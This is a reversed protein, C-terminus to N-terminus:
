ANRDVKGNPTLPLAALPIVSPVMPAPLLNTLAARLRRATQPANGAEADAEDHMVAWAVLRVEGAIRRPECIAQAVDPLSCLAAEVEGPEIRWGSLKVQRDRRGDFLLVGDPCCSVRDGTRYMRSGPLGHPSPLFAAATEGPRGLYGRAVGPGEVFLEGEVGDPVPQLAADLVMARTERLPQGIPIAGETDTLGVWHTTAFTTTETPGYGNTLRPAGERRLVARAAGPEVVDGGVLLDDLGGFMTEDRAVCASFLGATLWLTTVRHRGLAAAIMPPDPPLDPPLVVAAGNALAGWIEFTAADFSYPALHLVRKGPGMVAFEPAFAFAALGEQTNGVPKPRGTSGSTAFIVALAGPPPEALPEDPALPHGDIALESLGAPLSATSGDTVALRAGTDEVLLAVRAAPADPEVPVAAGGARAVAVLAVIRQISRRACVVVAVEPGVSERRLAQALAASKEDLEAYSLTEGEAIVAPADRHAAVAHAFLGALTRAPLDQKRPAIRLAADREAATLIPLNALKATPDAAAASAMAEFRKLLREVDAEDFLASAYEASVLLGQDGTVFRLSLDFKSTGTEIPEPVGFALNEQPKQAEHLAILVDFLPQRTPDRRPAVREAIRELPVSQHALAAEVQARVQRLHEAVGAETRASLRLPLTNVYFGVQDALMPHERGAVPMGVVMDEAGSLRAALAAFLAMLTQYPTTECALGLDEIAATAKESIPRKLTRGTMEARGSRPRPSLDLPLPLPSLADRWFRLAERAAESETEAQIAHAIDGAQVPLTKPAPERKARLATMIESLDRAIVDLSWGDCVIHHINFLLVAESKTRVFQVAFLPPAALDFVRLAEGQVAARLAAADALEHDEVTVSVAELVEAVPREGKLVFRTRLIEHRQTLLLLARQLLNTDVEGPSAFLVPNNYIARANGVALQDLVFLREQGPTLPAVAEGRRLIPAPAPTPTQDAFASAMGAPTPADFVLALTAPLGETDILASVLRMAKLSHGGLAFFDSHRGVPTGLIGAMERAIVAEIQTAPPELESADPLFPDPLRARDVKGSANLPMDDIVVVAAPVMAAPLKTAAHAILEAPALQDSPVDGGLHTIPDAFVLPVVHAVLAPTGQPGSALGVAADRVAPHSRLAAAVEGPEVRVGNVSVQADVRGAFWVTGDANMRVRDGTRYARRSTDTPLLRFRAATEEPRGAYSLALNCGSLWLEGPVGQPVRRGADDLIAIRNGPMPRGIPLADERGDAEHMLGMVSFETPGYCNFVRTKPALKAMEAPPTDGGTALVRLHAFRTAGFEAVFAPPLTVVEMADLAKGFAVPDARTAAN